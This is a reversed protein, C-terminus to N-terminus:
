LVWRGICSVHTWDRPHSSERSYSIAIWELIRAQSIGHVSCGPPRCDVPGCLPPCLKSVSCCCCIAKFSNRKHKPGWCLDPPPSCLHSSFTVPTFLIYCCSHHSYLLHSSFIVATIVYLHSSFIVPTILVYCTHHSCLHSSFVVATILVTRQLQGLRSTSGQVGQRQRAGRM